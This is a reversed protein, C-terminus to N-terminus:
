HSGLRLSKSSIKAQSLFHKFTKKGLRMSRDLYQENDKLIQDKPIKKNLIGCDKECYEMWREIMPADVELHFQLGYALDKYSFAQAPCLTSSALLKASSPLEFSDGHLQFVKEEQEFHSFLPDSKAEPLLNLTTWGIEPKEMREVKAGLVHALLQAGLCIGLIPVENKLAEEILRLETKIHTYQDAEYVGMQGGLVILANYHKVEPQIEPDREFNIYRIRLSHDRLVPNLIGLIKHAVHQFVILKKMKRNYHEKYFHFADSEKIAIWVQVVILSVSPAL